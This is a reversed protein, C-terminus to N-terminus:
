SSRQSTVVKSHSATQHDSATKQDNAPLRPVSPTPTPHINILSASITHGAAVAEEQSGLKAVEKHIRLLSGGKLITM